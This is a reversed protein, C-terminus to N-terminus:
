LSCYQNKNYDQFFDYINKLYHQASIGRRQIFVTLFQANLNEDSTLLPNRVIGLLEFEVLRKVSEGFYGQNGTSIGGSRPSDFPHSDPQSKDTTKASRVPRDACVSM